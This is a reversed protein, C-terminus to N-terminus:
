TKVNMDIWFAKITALTGENHHVRWLVDGVACGLTTISDLYNVLHVFDKEGSM